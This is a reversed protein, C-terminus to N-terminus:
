AGKNLQKYDEIYYVKTKKMFPGCGAFVQKYPRSERVIDKFEEITGPINHKKMFRANIDSLIFFKDKQVYSDRARVSKSSM